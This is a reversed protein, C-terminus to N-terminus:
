RGIKAVVAPEPEVLEQQNIPAGAGAFADNWINTYTAAWSAATMDGSLVDKASRGGQWGVEEDRATGMLTYATQVALLHDNPNAVEGASSGTTFTNRAMFKTRKDKLDALEATEAPTLTPGWSIDSETNKKDKSTWEQGEADYGPKAELVAIRDSWATFAIADSAVRHDFGQNEFWGKSGVVHKNAENSRVMEEVIRKNIDDVQKQDMVMFDEYSIDLGLVSVALGHTTSRNQALTAQAAEAAAIEADQSAGLAALELEYTKNAQYAAEKAADTRLNLDAEYAATDIKRAAEDQAMKLNFQRENQAMQDRAMQRDLDNNANQFEMALRQQEQQFRQAEEQQATAFGQAQTIEGQRQSIDELRGAESLEAATEQGSIALRAEAL